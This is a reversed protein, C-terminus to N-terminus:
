KNCVVLYYLLKITGKPKLKTIRRRKKQFEDLIKPCNKTIIEELEKINFAYYKKGYDSELRYKYTERKQFGANLGITLWTCTARSYVMDSKEMVDVQLYDKDLHYKNDKCLMAPHFGRISTVDEFYRQFCFWCPDITVGCGGYAHYSEHEKDYIRKFMEDYRRRIKEINPYNLDIEGISTGFSNTPIYPNGVVGRKICDITAFTRYGDLLFRVLYYDTTRKQFGFSEVVFYLGNSAKFYKGTLDEPKKNSTIIRINNM